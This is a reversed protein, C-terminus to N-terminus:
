KQADEGESRQERQANAAKRACSLSEISRLSIFRNKKQPGSHFHALFVVTALAEARAPSLCRNGGIKSRGFSVVYARECQRKDGTSLM